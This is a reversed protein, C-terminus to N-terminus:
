FGWFEKIVQAWHYWLPLGLFIALPVFILFGVAAIKLCERTDNTM